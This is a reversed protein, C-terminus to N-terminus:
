LKYTISMSMNIGNSYKERYYRNDKYLAGRGIYPDLANKLNFKVKLNKSIKKEFSGALNPRPFDLVEPSGDGPIFDIRSGYYVLFLAASIDLPENSYQLGTNSIYESAGIIPHTIEPISFKAVRQQLSATDYDMGTLLYTFNASISFDKLHYSIFEFNKIVETEFGLIAGRPVNEWTMEGNGTKLIFTKEIPNRLNKYFISTSVVEGPAPYWEGRIDFNDISTTQLDGNGTEIIKLAYNQSPYPSKERFIPRTKTRSYNTRIYFDKFLEIILSSSPLFYSEDLESTFDSNNQLKLKIREYRLGGTLRIKNTIPISTMLYAAYISQEAKHNAIKDTNFDYQLFNNMKYTLYAPFTDVDNYGMYKSSTFEDINGNLSDFLSNKPSIFFLKQEYKRSKIQAIGGLKVFCEKENNTEIPITIDIQSESQPENVTRFIRTAYRNNVLDFITDTIQGSTDETYHVKYPFLRRDPENYTSYSFGSRWDIKIDKFPIQHKGDLLAFHLGRELFSIEKIIFTNEPYQYHNTSFKDSIEEVGSRSYFYLAGINHHPSLEYSSNALWGWSASKKAKIGNFLYNSSLSDSVLDHGALEWDAEELNDVMRLSNDYTFASFLGLPKDFLYVTNGAEM